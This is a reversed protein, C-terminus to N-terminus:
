YIIFYLLIKAFHTFPLFSQLFHMLTWLRVLIKIFLYSYEQLLLSNITFYKTLIYLPGFSYWNQTFIHELIYYFIHIIKCFTMFPLFKTFFANLDLPTGFKVSYILINKCFYSILPLASQLFTNLEM